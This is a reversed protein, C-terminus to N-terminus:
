ISVRCHAPRLLARGLLKLKAYFLTWADGPLELFAIEMPRDHPGRPM